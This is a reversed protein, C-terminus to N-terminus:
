ATAPNDRGGLGVEALVETTHQGVFPAPGAPRTSAGGFRMPPAVLEIPSGAVTRHDNMFGNVAVQPHVPLEAPELMPGWCGTFDAFADQWQALSRQAILESLVDGLSHANRLRDAETAFREDDLLDVRDTVRCLDSWEAASRTLAFYVWRGDRTRYWNVLANNPRDRITRVTEIGLRDSTIDAQIAWMGANLLSSDVVTGVGSVARQYLAMAIAGALVSGAQTDFIGIPMTPPEGERDVMLSAVGSGAWASVLDFAPADRMPGVSGWGSGRAYIISPKIAQIDEVDIQLRRRVRELYSTAFVDATEVLRYLAARGEDGSLDLAVSRKGRNSFEVLVDMAEIEDGGGLNGRRLGDGTPPEIKIVDAGLDAMIATAIPVFVFGAVEVVRVGQLPRAADVDPM